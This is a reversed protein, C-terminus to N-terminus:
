EEKMGPVVCADMCVRDTITEGRILRTLIQVAKKGMQEENQQVHTYTYEGYTSLPSDFCTIKIDQPVRLGIQRCVKRTLVAIDYEAAIVVEVDPHAKLFEAIKGADDNTNKSKEGKLDPITCRISDLLYGACSGDKACLYRACMEQYGELRKKLSVADTGPPTFLAIRRYGKELLYRMLEEMAKKNDTGVYPVPLGELYRDVFVVPMGEGVMKLIETNYHQGHTPMVIMGAVKMQMLSELMKKERLQDGCSRKICLHYGKKEAEEEIAKLMEIGFSASFEEMVLGIMRSMEGGDAGREGAKQEAKGADLSAFSGRGPRRVIYGDQVLMGMAKQITIRSVGFEEALAKEAPLREGPRIQGCRIREQLTDYVTQYLCKEEEM